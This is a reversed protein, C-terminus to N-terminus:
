HHGGGHGHADHGHSAAPATEVAPLEPAIRLDGALMTVLASVVGFALVSYLLPLSGGLPGPGGRTFRWALWGAALGAWAALMRAVPNVELRTHCNPCEVSDSFAALTGASVHANCKPCIRSAV